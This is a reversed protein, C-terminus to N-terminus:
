VMDDDDDSDEDEEDDEDENDNYDGEVESQPGAAAEAADRAAMAAAVQDELMEAREIEEEEGESQEVDLEQDKEGETPEGAGEGEGERQKKGEDDTAMAIVKPSCEEMNVQFLRTIEEETDARDPLAAIKEFDADDMEYGDLLAQIKNRMIVKVKATTGNGFWGDGSAECEERVHPRKEPGRTFEDPPYLINKVVPDEIDCVMWIRGDRHLPLKGTFVYSTATEFGEGTSIDVRPAQYRRGTGGDRSLTLDSEQPMFRFMFTQYHRWEPSTRPDHGLKIIADRWPGSRFIYGVYPIAHRLMYRQDDNELFPRLARRTWAPREEFLQKLNEITTRLVTPLKEIPPLTDKPKSPVEKVDYSVLHSRVPAAAQTNFTVLEGYEGMKQKIGPNQHYMYIFPVTEHTFSPPPILDANKSAGKSLSIDFQKMKELNYPMIKERFRQTFESNTSSFVYDPMGRFMHTRQVKGVPEVTYRNPNDQLMRLIDQSTRRWPREEGTDEPSPDRFPEDTGRKRKRGTRKPVTVKLLVNNSAVSSSVLPRCMFDEPRLVLNAPTDTDGQLTDIAKDLNRIVAPHEVSVLRRPPIHHFPATRAERNGDM